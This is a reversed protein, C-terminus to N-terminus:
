SCEIMEGGLPVLSISLAEGNAKTKKQQQKYQLSLRDFHQRLKNVSLINPIWFDNNQAYKIIERIDESSRNDIRLLKDMDAAWKQIDPKKFTGDNLIIKNLLYDALIYEQSEPTYINAKSKKVKSQPTKEYNEMPNEQHFVMEPRKSKRWKARSDQINNFRRKIGDSTLIQKEDYAVKDFAGVELATKLIEDFIEPTVGVRKILALKIAPIGLNIEPNEMRFVRELLIFYFAYGDNGHFSRLAEIKDDTSADCDHPFYDMGKKTPRAM